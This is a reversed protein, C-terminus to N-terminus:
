RAAPDFESRLWKRAHPHARWAGWLENACMRAESPKGTVYHSREAPPITTGPLFYQAVHPNCKIARRLAKKARDPTTLVHALLARSWNWIAQDRDEYAQLLRKACRYRKCTLYAGVLSLRAGQNDRPNLRLMEELTEIAEDLKTATGADLLCLAYLHLARMYPRTDILGWFNGSESEFYNPGLRMRGSRIASRLMTARSTPTRERESLM